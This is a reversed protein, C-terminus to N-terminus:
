IVNNDEYFDYLSTSLKGAVQWSKDNVMNKNECSTKQNEFSQYAYGPLLHCM